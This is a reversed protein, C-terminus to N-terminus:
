SELVDSLARRPTEPGTRGFGVRLILQPSGPRGALDGVRSRLATVEIPQNLFSVRLVESEARLLARDLAEGSRVWDLASDSDTGLIALMPSAQVLDQEGIPERANHDVLRVGLAALHSDALSGEPAGGFVGDPDVSGGPRLWQGLETRFHVDGWQERDAELVLAVLRARTAEESLPVLWAGEAEVDRCLREIADEPVAADPYLTRSTHRPALAACLVREDETPPLGPRATVRALLDPHTSEPLRTVDLDLSWTRLAMRLHFLAAGCSITLERGRPDSVRLMRSRDALLEITSGHIHFRWPQSNHISPAREAHAVAWQLKEGFPQSPDTTAM